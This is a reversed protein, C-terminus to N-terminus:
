TKLKVWGSISGVGSTSLLTQGARDSHATFLLRPLCVGWFGADVRVTVCVWVCVVCVGCVCLCLLCVSVYVCWVCTPNRGSYVTVGVWGCECVGVCVGVCVEFCVCMTVSETSVSICVGCLNQEKGWYVMVEACVGEGM